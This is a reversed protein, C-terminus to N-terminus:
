GFLEAVKLRWGPLVDDVCLEASDDYLEVQNPGRSVRVTRNEPDVVMVVQVGSSLWFSTKEEVESFSDGPSIVECVLDPALPVFGTIDDLANIRDERVFAVDPARVTDPNRSLIFGTEAAFVAGLGIPEAHNGLLRCLRSAVLGHRGGAPSMMKLVGNVLERRHGDDPLEALQEATVNKRHTSTSM